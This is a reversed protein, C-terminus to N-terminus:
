NAENAYAVAFNQGAMRIGDPTWHIGDALVPLQRQIVPYVGPRDYQVTWQSLTLHAAFPRGSVPVEIADPDFGDFNDPFPDQRYTGHLFPMDDPVQPASRAFDVISVYKEDWSEAKARQQMDAGGQQFLFGEFTVDPHALYAARVRAGLEQGLDASPVWRDISTGGVAHKIIGINSDPCAAHMTWAFPIEPGYKGNAPIGLPQWAGEDFMQLQPIGSEYVAPLTGPVGGAAQMNSQGAVIFTRFTPDTQDWPCTLTAGVDAEPEGAGPTCAAAVMMLAFVAVMMKRMHPMKPM